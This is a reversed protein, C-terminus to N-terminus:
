AMVKNLRALLEAAEQQTLADDNEATNIDTSIQDAETSTIGDTIRRDIGQYVENVRNLDTPDVTGMAMIAAECQDLISQTYKTPKLVDAESIAGGTAAVIFESFGNATPTTTASKWRAKMATFADTQQQGTMALPQIVHEKKKGRSATLMLKMPKDINSLHSIEIGGTRVGGYMVDPNRFLTMSRGVYSAGDAGWALVLVRRMTKCPKFPQRGGSIGINVPQEASGKTIGTVTVTIPGTLLDDANLQDSKPKITESLDM